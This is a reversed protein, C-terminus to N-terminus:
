SKFRQFVFISDTNTNGRQILLDDKQYLIDLRKVPGLSEWRDANDTDVGYMIKELEVWLVTMPMGTFPNRDDRLYWEGTIRVDFSSEGDNGFTEIYECRGLFKSGTLKQVLRSFQAMDSSPHGLGSLGKNTIMTGSSTYLLEWEGMVMASTIKGNNVANTPELELEVVMAQILDQEQDTSELGCPLKNPVANMYSLLELLEEQRSTPPPPTTTKSVDLAVVVVDEEEEDEFLNDILRCLAVFGTEDLKDDTTTTATACASAFLDELESSSVDGCSLMEQLEEWGQLDQLTVVGVGSGSSSGRGLQQFVLMPDQRFVSSSAAAALRLADNRTSLVRHHLKWPPTFSQVASFLCVSWLILPSCSRCGM